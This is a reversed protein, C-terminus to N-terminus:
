ERGPFIDNNRNFAADDVIVTKEDKETKIKNIKMTKM